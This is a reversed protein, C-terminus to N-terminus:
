VVCVAIENMEHRNQILIKLIFLLYTPSRSLSLLNMIFHFKTFRIDLHPLSISREPLFFPPHKKWCLLSDLELRLVLSFESLNFEYCYTLYRLKFHRSYNWVRCEKRFLKYRKLSEFWWIVKTATVVFIRLLQNATNRLMLDTVSYCGFIM